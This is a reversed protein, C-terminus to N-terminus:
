PTNISDVNRHRFCTNLATIQSAVQADTINESPQHYLVHVVVPIKIVSTAGDTRSSINSPSNLHQQTFLEIAKIKEALSPDQRLEEQQYTFALCKQQATLQNTLALAILISIFGAKM